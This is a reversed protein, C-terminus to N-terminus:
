RPMASGLFGRSALSPDLAACAPPPHLCANFATLAAHLMCSRATFAAHLLHLLGVCLIGCCVAASRRHAIIAMQKATRSHISPLLPKERQEEPVGCMAQRRGSTSLMSLVLAALSTLLLGRLHAYAHLM